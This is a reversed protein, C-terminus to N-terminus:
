RDDIDRQIIPRLVLDHMIIEDNNIWTDPNDEIIEYEGIRVMRQIMRYSTDEKASLKVPKNQSHAKRNIVGTIYNHIEQSAIRDRTPSSAIDVIEISDDDEGYIIYWDNNRAITLEEVYYNYLDELEEVDEVDQMLKMEEQYAQNEVNIVFDLTEQSINYGSEEILRRMPSLESVDIPTLGSRPTYSVESNKEKQKKVIEKEIKEQIEEELKEQATKIKEKGLDNINKCKSIARQALDKGNDRNYAGVWLANNEFNIYLPRGKLYSFSTERELIKEAVEKTMPTPDYHAMGMGVPQSHNYLAALVEARDKNSIDITNSDIEIYGYDEQGEEIGYQGLIEKAFRKSFERSFEEDTSAEIYRPIFTM